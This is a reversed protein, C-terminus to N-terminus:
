MEVSTEYVLEPDSQSDVIKLVRIYAGAQCTRYCSKKYENAMFVAMSESEFWQPPILHSRIEVKSSLVEVVFEKNEM